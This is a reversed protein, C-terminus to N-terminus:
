TYVAHVSYILTHLRDIERDREIDRERERYIYLFQISFMYLDYTIYVGTYM